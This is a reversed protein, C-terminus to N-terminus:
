RRSYVQLAISLIKSVEARNIPKEPAFTSGKPTVYGSVIGDAVATYIADIYLTSSTVDSFIAKQGESARLSSGFAQLVTMVVEARTAPRGPDVTGDSYVVFGQQEACALFRESWRGAALANKAPLQCRDVSFGSAQVAMKALEEISVNREPGFIGTPVGQANRYGSVIGRNAVDRVYPAFWVGVPVDKLSYPVDNIRFAVFGDQEIAPRRSSSINEDSSDFLDGSQLELEKSEAADDSVEATLVIGFRLREGQLRQFSDAVAVAPYVLFLLAM